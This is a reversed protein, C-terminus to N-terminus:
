VFTIIQQTKKKLNLLKSELVLVTMVIACVLIHMFEHGQREQGFTFDTRHELLQSSLCCCVLQLLKSLVDRFGPNVADGPRRRAPANELHCHSCVIIDFAPVIAQMATRRAFPAHWEVEQEVKEMLLSPQRSQSNTQDWFFLKLPNLSCFVAGKLTTYLM